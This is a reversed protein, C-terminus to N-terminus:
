EAFSTHTRRLKPSRSRTSVKSAQEGGGDVPAEPKGVEDRADDVEEHGDDEPPDPVPDDSDFGLTRNDEVTELTRREQLREDHAIGPQGLVSGGETILVVKWLPPTRSKRLPSWSRRKSFALGERISSNPIM